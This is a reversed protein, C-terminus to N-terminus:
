GQTLKISEDSVMKMLDTEKFKMGKEVTSQLNQFMKRVEWTKMDWETVLVYAIAEDLTAPIHFLDM